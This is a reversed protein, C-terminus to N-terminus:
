GAQLTAIFYVNGSWRVEGLQPQLRSESSEPLQMGIQEEADVTFAICPRPQTSDVAFNAECRGIPAPANVQQEMVKQRRDAWRFIGFSERLNGPWRPKLSKRQQM